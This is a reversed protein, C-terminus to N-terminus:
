AVQEDDGGEVCIYESFFRCDTLDVDLAVPKFAKQHLKNVLHVLVDPYEETGLMKVFIEAQGLLDTLSHELQIELCQQQLKVVHMEQRTIALGSLVKSRIEKINKKM